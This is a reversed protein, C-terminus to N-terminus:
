DADRKVVEWMRSYGESAQKGLNSGGSVGANVKCLAQLFSNGTTNSAQNVDLRQVDHLALIVLSVRHDHRDYELNDTSIELMEVVNLPPPPLPEKRVAKKLQAAPEKKTKKKNSNGKGSVVEEEEEEEEEEQDSGDSDSSSKEKHKRKRTKQTAKEEEGSEDDEFVYVKQRNSRM